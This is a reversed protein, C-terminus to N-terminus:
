MNNKNFASVRVPDLDSNVIRGERYIRVSLRGKEQLGIHISVARTASQTAETERWLLGAGM